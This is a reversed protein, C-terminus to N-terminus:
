CNGEFSLKWLGPQASTGRVRQCVILRVDPTGRPAKGKREAFIEAGLPATHPLYLRPSPPTSLSVAARTVPIVFFTIGPSLYGTDPAAFAVSPSDNVGFANPAPLGREGIILGARRRTNEFSEILLEASGTTACVRGPTQSRRCSGGINQPEIMTVRKKGM